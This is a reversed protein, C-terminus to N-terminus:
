TPLAPRESRDAEELILKAFARADEVTLIVSAGNGPREIEYIGVGVGEPQAKVITQMTGDPWTLEAEELVTGLRAHLIQAVRGPIEITVSPMTMLKMILAGCGECLYAGVDSVEGIEIVRPAHEHAGERADDSM